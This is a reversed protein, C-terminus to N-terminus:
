QCRPPLSLSRFLYLEQSCLENRLAIKVSQKEEHCFMEFRFTLHFVTIVVLQQGLKNNQLQKSIDAEDAVLDDSSVTLQM